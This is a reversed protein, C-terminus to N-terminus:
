LIYAKRHSSGDNINFIVMHKDNKARNQAWM